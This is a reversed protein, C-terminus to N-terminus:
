KLVGKGDCRKCVIVQRGKDISFHNFTKRGLCDPCEKYKSEAYRGNFVLNGNIARLVPKMNKNM